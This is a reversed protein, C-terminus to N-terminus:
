CRAAAHVFNQIALVVSFFGVLAFLLSVAAASAYNCCIESM